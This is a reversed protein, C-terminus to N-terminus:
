ASMPYCGTMVWVTWCDVDSGTRLMDVIDKAVRMNGKEAMYDITNCIWGQVRRDTSFKAATYLPALLTRCQLRQLPSFPEANDPRAGPIICQPVSDCIQRCIRDTTESAGMGLDQHHKMIVGAMELRMMRLANWAQTAYHCPYIDYQGDLLQPKHNFNALVPEPKWSKSMKGELSALNQDIDEAREIADPGVPGRAHSIQARLNVIDYLIGLFEWKSDMNLTDLSQRLSLISEPIPVKAAGCSITTATVVSRALECAIPSSFNLAGRAAVLSVAGQVHSMWSPTTQCQRNTLKEYTDLLLVSQLTEDRELAKPDRLADNLNQIAVVYRQNALDMIRHSEFQMATFALSAADVSTALHGIASAQTYLPVLSTCSHSLGSVFLSFFTARCRAEM